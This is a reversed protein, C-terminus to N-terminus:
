AKQGKSISIGILADILKGQTRRLRELLLAERKQLRKLMAVKKQTQLDPLYIELNELDRKGVGVIASGQARQAYHRRANEATLMWALYDPDVQQPNPRIIMLPAAIVVPMETKPMVAAVIGAGRGRFVLDGAKAFFAEAQRDASFPILRDFLINGDASLDGLQMLLANPASLSLSPRERLTLGTIASAISSFNLSM